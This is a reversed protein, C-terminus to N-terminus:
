ACLLHCLVPPLTANTCSCAGGGKRVLIAHLVDLGFPCATCAVCARRTTTRRLHKTAHLTHAAHWRDASSLTMANRAAQDRFSADTTRWSHARSDHSRGRSSRAAARAACQSCRRPRSPQRRQNCSRRLHCCSPSLKAVRQVFRCRAVAKWAQRLQTCVRWSFSRNALETALRHFLRCRAAANWAQISSTCTCTVCDFWLLMCIIM